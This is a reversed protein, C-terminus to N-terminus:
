YYADYDVTCSYTTGAVPKGTENWIGEETILYFDGSLTAATNNLEENTWISGGNTINMYVRTYSVAETTSSALTSNLKIRVTFNVVQEHHIRTSGGSSTFNNRLVWASGNWQYVAVWLIDNNHVDAAWVMQILTVNFPQLLLAFLLIGIAIVTVSSSKVLKQTQAM